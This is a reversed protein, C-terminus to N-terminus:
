MIFYETVFCDHNNEKCHSVFFVSLVGRQFESPTAGCLLTTHHRVWKGLM